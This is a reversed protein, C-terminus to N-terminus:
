MTLISALDFVLRPPVLPALPLRPAHEAALRSAKPSGLLPPAKFVSGAAPTAGRPDARLGPRVFLFYLRRSAKAPKSNMEGHIM